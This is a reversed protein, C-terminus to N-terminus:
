PKRLTDGSPRLEIMGICPDYVKGFEDQNSITRMAAFARIRTQPFVDALRAAAGLLTAGRTVIDDVLVIEDPKSLRGQVVISEYHKAPTPREDPPSLAARPVPKVRVLCSVVEKGLGMRVLATAIREPVWPTDPQMLSSKPTPILITDPQFFSAFPLTSKDQQITQAVWESMLIPPDGVFRDNKLALM